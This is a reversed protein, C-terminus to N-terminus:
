HISCKGKIRDAGLNHLLIWEGLDAASGPM